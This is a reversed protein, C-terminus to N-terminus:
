IGFSPSKNSIWVKFNELLVNYDNLWKAALADENALKYAEGRVKSKMLEIFEVPLMIIDTEKTASTKLKPRKIYIIRIEIGDPYNETFGLSFNIKNDYKFYCNPLIDGTAVTSKKLQISHGNVDAYVAYIDEFRLQFDEGIESLELFDKKITTTYENQEKIIESYLMQELANIWHIYNDENVVPAIDAEDKISKILEKVTIGSNFM